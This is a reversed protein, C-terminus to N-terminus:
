NALLYDNWDTGIIKPFAVIVEKGQEKLRKALAYASKQGTFSIDNDGAIIVKKIQDPIQVAELKCADMAAWVPYNILKTYSLVTEVGEGIILTDSDLLPSLRIASGIMSGDEVAYMRRGIKIADRIYTCHLGAIRNGKAAKFVMCDTLQKEFYFTGLMASQPVELGRSKMYKAITGDDPRCSSLIESIMKRKDTKFPKMEKAGGIVKEVLRWADQHSVMSMQALLHIGTGSGCGSCFYSGNESKPEYRFRDKGGCLPCPGHKGTLFEKQIYNSHISLWKYRALEKTENM